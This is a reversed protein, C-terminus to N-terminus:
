RTGQLQVALVVFCLSTFFMAIYCFLSVLDLKRDQRYVSCYLGLMGTAVSSIYNCFV